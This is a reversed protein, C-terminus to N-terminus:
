FHYDFTNGIYYIDGDEVSRMFHDFTAIGFYEDNDDIYFGGESDYCNKLNWMDLWKGNSMFDELSYNSLKELNEKFGEFKKEFYEAKSVIKLKYCNDGVVIELGKNCSTLWELDQKKSDSAVVYDAVKGVFYDNYRYEKILDDEAIKNKSVQFIRSHM